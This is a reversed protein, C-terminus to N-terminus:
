LDLLIRLREEIAALSVARLMGLRLTLRDTSVTRIQDCLVFSRVRLGGDPPEIPFHFRIRRERTTLPCIVILGSPGANFTSASVVVAPRQGGQERGRVTELDVRWVEGRRPRQDDM